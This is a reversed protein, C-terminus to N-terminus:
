AAGGYSGSGYSGASKKASTIASSLKKTGPVRSLVLLGVIAGVFAIFEKRTLKKDM